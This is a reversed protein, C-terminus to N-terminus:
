PYAPGPPHRLTRDRNWSCTLRVFTAQYTICPPSSSCCPLSFWSLRVVPHLYMSALWVKVARDRGAWNRRWKQPKSDTSRYATRSAKSHTTFISCHVVNNAGTNWVRSPKGIEEHVEEKSSQWEEVDVGTSRGGVTAICAPSVEDVLVEVRRRMADEGEPAASPPFHLDIKQRAARSANAVLYKLDAPSQLEIKRYTTDM